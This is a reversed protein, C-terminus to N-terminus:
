QVDYICADSCMAESLAAMFGILWKEDKFQERSDEVSGWSIDFMGAFRMLLIKYVEKTEPKGNRRDIQTFAWSWNADTFPEITSRMRKMPKKWEHGENYVVAIYM